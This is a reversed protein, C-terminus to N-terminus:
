IDKESEWKNTYPDFLCQNLKRWSSGNFEIDSNDFCIYRFQCDKCIDINDNNVFWKRTFDSNQIIETISTNNFNGFTANHSLYNRFDGNNDICVKRNLAVNYEQAESFFEINTIFKEKGILDTTTNDVIKSTFALKKDKFYKYDEYQAKTKEEDTVSHVLIYSIRNEIDELYQTLSDDFLPEPLLIEVAKIRSFRTANVIEPLIKNIDADSIRIQIGACGLSGLEKIASSINYNCNQGIELVANNIKLPSDWTIDLEPFSEPNDLFFGYGIEDLHSFYHDIGENLENNFLNKIEAVTKGRTNKLVDILLNPINIYENNQLDAIISEQTGQVAICNAYLNFYSSM